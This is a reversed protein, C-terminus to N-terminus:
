FVSKVGAYVQRGILPGWINNVDFEGAGNFYLPSESQTYDFLNRVGLTLSSDTTMKYVAQLDVTFFDPAHGKKRSTQNTGDTINFRDKYGYPALNRAGVWNITTSIDFRDKDFDLLLSSRQEINAVPSLNKYLTQYLYKEYTLGVSFEPTVQIGMSSDLTTVEVDRESYNRLVPRAASTDIYSIDQVKTWSGGVTTTTRVGTHTLAYTISDSTELEDVSIDFGDELIGHESEFFTLPARYGKGYALRSELGAMHQYRLHFRPALINENIENTGPQDVWDTQIKNFRLATSLEFKDNPAWVDQIYLGPSFYKFSDSNNGGQQFFVFSKSRMEEQKLDSGISVLHDDGLSSNIKLDYYYTEDANYYDAGEYWSDQTAKAYSGTAVVNINENVNQTVRLAVENRAVDIIEAVQGPNGIFKERVDGGQFSTQDVNGGPQNTTAFTHGNMPGGFISAKLTNVRIDINTKPGVDQSYKAMVSRTDREAAENVGNNDTDWQGQKAFQGAITTRRKGEQGVATSVLTLNQYDNNGGSVDIITKNEKAKQTVVNVVGGIAEPASLAAGSGRAIEISAVGLTGLSEFGYYSSVTSHMPIGDVMVTTYEGRLGNIQVRKIGCISCGNLTQIGPENEIAQILNKAQKREIKKHSIVETKIISDKVKGSNVLGENVDHQVHITELQEDAFAFPISLTILLWIM